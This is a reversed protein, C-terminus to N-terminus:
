EIGADKRLETYMESTEAENWMGVGSSMFRHMVAVNASRDEAASLHSELHIENLAMLAHSRAEAPQREKAVRYAEYHLLFSEQHSRGSM